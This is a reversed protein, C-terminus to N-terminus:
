LNRFCEAGLSLNPLEIGLKLNPPLGLGSTLSAFRATLNAPDVWSGDLLLSGFSLDLFSWFEFFTLTNQVKSVKKRKGGDAM